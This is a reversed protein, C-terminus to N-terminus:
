SRRYEKIQTLALMVPIQIYHMAQTYFPELGDTDSCGM